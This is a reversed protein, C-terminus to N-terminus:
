IMTSFLVNFIGPYCEFNKKKKKIKKIKSKGKNNEKM